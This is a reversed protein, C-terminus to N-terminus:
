RAAGYTNLDQAKLQNLLALQQQTNMVPADFAGRGYGAAGGSKLKSVGQEALAQFLGQWKPDPLVNTVPPPAGLPQQGAQYQRLRADQAAKWAEMGRQQLAIGNPDALPQAGFVPM